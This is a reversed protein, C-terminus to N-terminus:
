VIKQYATLMDGADEILVDKPQRLLWFVAMFDGGAAAANVVTPIFIWPLLPNPLMTILVLGLVSIVTFPALANIIMMFRRNLYGPASAFILLGRWGIQPPIGQDLYFVFAHILEHLGLVTIVDIVVLLISLIAPTNPLEINLYTKFSSSLEPYRLRTFFIFVFMFGIFGIVRLLYSTALMIKNNAFDLSSKRTYNEFRVSV